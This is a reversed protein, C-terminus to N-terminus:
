RKPFNSSPYSDNFSKKRFYSSHEEKSLLIFSLFQQLVEKPLLIFISRESTLHLLFQLIFYSNNFSKKQFYSSHVVKPLIIFLLFQQFVEESLLIITCCLRHQFLCILYVIPRYSLRKPGSYPIDKHCNPGSVRIFTSTKSPRKNFPVYIIYPIDTHYNQSRLGEQAGLSLSPIPWFVWLNEVWTTQM